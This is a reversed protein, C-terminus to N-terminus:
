LRSAESMKLQIVDILREFVVEASPTADIIVNSQKDNEFVSLYSSRVRKLLGDDREYIDRRVPRRRFSEEVPIDLLINIDPKPMRKHIKTLWDRDLGTAIGYAICCNVYRDAILVDNAHQDWLEDPLTEYRNVFQCCQFAYAKPNRVYAPTGEGVAYAIKNSISVTWDGNLYGKLMEGTLSDYGPLSFKIVNKGKELFFKRLLESQTAKGCADIGSLSIFFGM